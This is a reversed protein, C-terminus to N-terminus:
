SNVGVFGRLPIREMKTEYRRTDFVFPRIRVAFTYLLVAAAPKPPVTVILGAFSGIPDARSHM